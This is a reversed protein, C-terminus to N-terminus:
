SGNTLPKLRWIKVINLLNARTPHPDHIFYGNQSVVCHLLDKGRECYGISLYYEDNQPHEFQEVLEYNQKKLWEVFKEKRLGKEFREFPPISELDLELISAIGARLCNGQYGGVDMKTQDVPIM